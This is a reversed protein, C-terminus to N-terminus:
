CQLDARGLLREANCAKRTTELAAQVDKNEPKVRRAKELVALAASYEGRERHARAASLYSRIVEDGVPSPPVPKKVPGKVAVVLPTSSLGGYNASVEATGESQGQIEGGGSVSLIKPQSSQWDVAGTILKESGDSYQGVLRLRSTEMMGLEVKGGQVRVSVLRLEPKAASKVALTFAGSWVDALHATIDARGESLAVAQGGSSVRVIKPESSRWEVADSIVRETGDAYQARANLTLRESIKLERKNAFVALGTLPPPKLGPRALAERVPQVSLTLPPSEFDRYRATIITSGENQAKLQGSANVSGVSPNSSQWRVNETVEKTSGDSYSAQLKLAVQDKVQIQTKDPVVSLDVIRATVPEQHVFYGRIGVLSVFLFLLFLGAGGVISWKLVV